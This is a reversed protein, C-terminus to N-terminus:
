SYRGRRDSYSVDPVVVDQTKAAGKPTQRDYQEPSVYTVQTQRLQYMGGLM